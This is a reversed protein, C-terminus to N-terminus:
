CCAVYNTTTCNSNVRWCNKHWGGSCHATSAICSGCGGEPPCGASATSDAVLKSLARDAFSNIKAVFRM